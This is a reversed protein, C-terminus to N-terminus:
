PRGEIGVSGPQTCVRVLCAGIAPFPELDIGGEHALHTYAYLQAEEQRPQELRLPIYALSRRSLSDGREYGIAAGDGSDLRERNVTVAGSAIQM